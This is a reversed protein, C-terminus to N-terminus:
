HKCTVVEILIDSVIINALEVSIIVARGEIAVAKANIKKYLSDIDSDSKNLRVCIDHILRKARKVSMPKEM